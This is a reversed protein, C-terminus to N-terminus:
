TIQHRFQWGHSQHRSKNPLTRHQTKPEALTYSRASFRLTRPRIHMESKSKNYFIPYAQPQTTLPGADYGPTKPEIGARSQKKKVAKVEAM